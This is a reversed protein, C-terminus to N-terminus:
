QIFVFGTLYETACEILFLVLSIITINRFRHVLQLLNQHYFFHRNSSMTASGVSPIGGIDDLFAALGALAALPALAALSAALAM